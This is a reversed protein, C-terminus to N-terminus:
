QLMTVEQPIYLTYKTEIVKGVLNYWNGVEVRYSDTENGSAYKKVEDAPIMRNNIKIYYTDNAIGVEPASITEVKYVANKECVLSEATWFGVAVFFIALMITMAIWINRYLSKKEAFECKLTSLIFWELFAFGGLAFVLLILIEVVNNM